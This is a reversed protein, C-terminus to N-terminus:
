RNRTNLYFMYKNLTVLKQIDPHVQGVEVMVSNDGHVGDIFVSIDLNVYDGNEFPRMNPIGHCMVIFNMIQHNYIFFCAKMQLSAFAKLFDWLNLLHQIVGM